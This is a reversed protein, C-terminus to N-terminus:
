TAGDFLKDVSVLYDFGGSGRVAEVLAASWAGDSAGDLDADFPESGTLADAVARVVDGGGAKVVVAMHGRAGSGGSAARVIQRGPRVREVIADVLGLLTPTDVDHGDVPEREVVEALDAVASAVWRDGRGERVREADIEALRDRIMVGATQRARCRDRADAAHLRAYDADTRTPTGGDRLYLERDVDEVTEGADSWGAAAVPNVGEGNVQGASTEQELGSKGQGDGHDDDGVGAGVSVGEGRDQSDVASRPQRSADATADAVSHHDQVVEPENCTLNVLLDPENQAASRRGRPVASQRGEPAASRRGRPQRQAPRTRQNEPLPESELTYLSAGQGHSGSRYTVSMWGADILENVYRDVTDVSWGLDKGLVGRRPIAGKPMGAYRDLAGWLKVANGSPGAATFLQRPMAAYAFKKSREVTISDDADRTPSTKRPTM